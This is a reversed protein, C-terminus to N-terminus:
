KSKALFYRSAVSKFFKFWSIISLKKKFIVKKFILPRNKQFNDWVHDKYALKIGCQVFRGSYMESQSEFFFLYKSLNRPTLFM